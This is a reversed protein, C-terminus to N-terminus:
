KAKEQELQDVLDWALKAQADRYHALLRAVALLTTDDEKECFESVMCGIQGLMRAHSKLDDTM